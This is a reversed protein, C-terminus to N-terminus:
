ECDGYVGLLILIDQVNIYSNGDLDYTNNFTGYANIVSLVDDVDVAGDGDFDGECIELDYEVLLVAAPELYAMSGYYEGFSMGLM